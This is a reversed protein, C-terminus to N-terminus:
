HAILRRDHIRNATEKSRFLAGLPRQFHAYLVEFLIGTNTFFDVVASLAGIGQTYGM